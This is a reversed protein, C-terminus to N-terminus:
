CTFAYTNSDPCDSELTMDDGLPGLLGVTESQRRPRKLAWPLAPVVAFCVALLPRPSWLKHRAGSFSGGLGGVQGMPALSLQCQLPPLRQAKKGLLFVNGSTVQSM